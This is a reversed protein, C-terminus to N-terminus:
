EFKAIQFDKESLQNLNKSALIINNPEIEYNLSLLDDFYVAYM